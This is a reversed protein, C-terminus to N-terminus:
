DVNDKEKEPKNVSKKGAKKAKTKSCKGDEDVTVSGGERTCMPPFMEAKTKKDSM